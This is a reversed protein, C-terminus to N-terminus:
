WRVGLRAEVKAEQQYINSLNVGIKFKIGQMLQQSASLNRHKHVFLAIHDLFTLKEFPSRELMVNLENSVCTQRYLAYPSPRCVEDIALSNNIATAISQDWFVLGDSDALTRRDVEVMWLYPTAEHPADSAWRELV